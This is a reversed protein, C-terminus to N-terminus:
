ATCGSKSCYRRDESWLMYVVAGLSLVWLPVWARRDYWRTHDFCIIFTVLYLALPLVWLFPVVAVGQTMQGTTALLMVSGCAALLLWLLRDRTSVASASPPLAAPAARSGVRSVRLACLACCLVYLGFMVSWLSSAAVVLYPLGVTVFLLVIIHLTPSTPDVPRWGAGPTIPLLAVALVLLGLHVAAQRRVSLRTGVLHACLYGGLLLVQFFLVCTTWVAPSGGYWPLIYRAVIPQVQFLLFPGLFITGAYLAM